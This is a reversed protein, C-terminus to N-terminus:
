ENTFYTQIAQSTLERGGTGITLYNLRMLKSEIQKFYHEDLGTLARLTSESQAYRFTGNAYKKPRNFLAELVKRDIGYLGNDDLDLL